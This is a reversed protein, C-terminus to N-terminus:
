LILQTLQHAEAHLTKNGHRVHLFYIDMVAKFRHVMEQYIRLAIHSSDKYCHHLIGEFDYVICVQQLRNAFAWELARLCAMLEAGVNQLDNFHEDYVYGFDRYVPESNHTSYVIIGYTGKDKKFSGDIYIVMQEVRNHHEQEVTAIKVPATLAKQTKKKKQQKAFSNLWKQAQQENVCKKGRMGKKGFVKDIFEEKSYVIGTFVSGYIAYVCANNSASPQQREKPSVFSEVWDRAEQELTFRKGYMGKKGTVHAKFEKHSDVVGKFAPGWIGYYVSKKKAM